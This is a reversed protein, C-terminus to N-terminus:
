MHVYVTFLHIQQPFFLRINHIVFKILLSLICFILGKKIHLYSILSSLPSNLSPLRHCTSLPCCVYLFSCCAHLFLFRFIPCVFLLNSLFLSYVYTATIILTHVCNTSGSILSTFVFLSIGCTWLSIGFLVILQLKTSSFELGRTPYPVWDGKVNARPSPIRRLFLM